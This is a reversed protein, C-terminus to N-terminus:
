DHRSEKLADAIEVAHRWWRGRFYFMPLLEYSQQTMPEFDALFMAFLTTYRSNGEMVAMFSIQQGHLRATTAIKRAIALEARSRSRCTPCGYCLMYITKESYKELIAREDNEMSM